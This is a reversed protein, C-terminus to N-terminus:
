ADEKPPWAIASHWSSEHDRTDRLTDELVASMFLPPTWNYNRPSKCWEITTRVAAELSVAAYAVRGIQKAVVRCGECGLYDTGLTSDTDTRHDGLREYTRGCLSAVTLDPQRGEPWMWRDKSAAEELRAYRDPDLWFAHLRLRRGKNSVASWILKM